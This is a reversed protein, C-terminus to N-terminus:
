RAVKAKLADMEHQLNDNAAKLGKIQEQQEQVAKVLPVVLDSYALSKMGGPDTGVAEPYLPEVEQAIFGIRQGHDMDKSKWHYTVPRLKMVADLGRQRPLNEIRDKLRVDSVNTWAQNGGCGSLNASSCYLAKGSSNSNTFYGGYGTASANDGYIGYNAGSAGTSHGWVGTAGATTSSTSGEV